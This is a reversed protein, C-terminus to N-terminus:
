YLFLNVRTLMRPEQWDCHRSNAPIFTLKGRLDHLNSRLGEVQAEGDDRAAQEYAVLLHRPGRFGYEFPRLETIRMTEAQLGERTATERKVIDSPTFAVPWGANVVASASRM